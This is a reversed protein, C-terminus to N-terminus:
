PLEVAVEDPGILISRISTVDVPNSLGATIVNETETYHGTSGDTGEEIKNGDKDLFAYVYLETPLCDEEGKHVVAQMALTSELDYHISLSLPSLTISNITVPMGGITVERDLEYTQTQESVDAFPIELTWNGEIRRPTQQGDSLGNEYTYYCFDTFSVSLSNGNWGYGDDFLIDWYYYGQTSFEGPAKEETFAGGASHPRDSELLNEGSETIMKINDFNGNGDLLEEDSTVDFLMYIRNGDKLTQVATLTIGNDTASINQEQAIGSEAMKEQLEPTPNDFEEAAKANWHLVAATATTGFAMVLVIAAAAAKTRLNWFQKKGTQIKKMQRDESELNELTFLVRKHVQEPVDPLEDLWQTHNM